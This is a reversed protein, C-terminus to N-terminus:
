ENRSVRIRLYLERAARQAAAKKPAGQASATWERGVRAEVTFIKAHGAGSEGVLVYVPQPMGHGQAFVQLASKYDSSDALSGSDEGFHEGAHAVVTRCVVDRAANMGGDLYVAAILAEPADALVSAKARGGSKEEGRGLRLHSGLDLELAVAHLHTANVLRATLKTLRGERYDPFRQVLHESVLFDLVSDGLFELQENSVSAQGGGTRVDHAHSSHTLARVLLARDNFPYGIRAELTEIDARTGTRM